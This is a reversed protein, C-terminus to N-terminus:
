RRRGDAYQELMQIRRGLEAIRDDRLALDRTADNQRYVEARIEKQQEIVTDLKSFKSDFWLVASVTQLLLVAAM